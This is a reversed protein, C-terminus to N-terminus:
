EKCSPNYLFANDDDGRPEQLTATGTRVFRLCGHACGGDRGGAQHSERLEAQRGGRLWLQLPRLRPDASPRGGSFPCLDRRLRFLLLLNFTM